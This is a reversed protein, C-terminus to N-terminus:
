VIRVAMGVDRNAALADRALDTLGQEVSRSPGSEARVEQVLVM